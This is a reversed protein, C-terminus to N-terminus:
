IWIGVFKWRNSYNEFYSCRNRRTAGPTGTGGQAVSVTNDGQNAASSTLTNCTSECMTHHFFIKKKIIDMYWGFKWRNSHNEFYSCWNWCVSIFWYNHYDSVRKSRSDSLTVFLVAVHRICLDETFVAQRSGVSINVEDSLERKTLRRNAKM